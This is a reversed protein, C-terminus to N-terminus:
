PDRGLASQTGWHKPRDDCILERLEQESVAVALQADTYSLYHKALKKLDDLERNGIHDRENKAFGYLFVSRHRSMHAIVTRTGSL